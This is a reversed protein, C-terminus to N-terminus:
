GHLSLVRIRRPNESTRGQNKHRGKEDEIRQRKRIGIERKQQIGVAKHGGAREIRRECMLEPYDGGGVLEM